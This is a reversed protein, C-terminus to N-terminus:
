RVTTTPVVAWGWCREKSADVVTHKVSQMMYPSTPLRENDRYLRGTYPAIIDGPEFQHTAFLGCGWQGDQVRIGLIADAHSPCYPALVTKELCAQARCPHIKLRTRRRVPATQEYWYTRLIPHSDM